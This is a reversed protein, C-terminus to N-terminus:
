NSLGVWDNMGVLWYTEIQCILYNLRSNLEVSYEAM